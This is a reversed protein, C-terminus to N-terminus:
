SAMCIGEAALMTARTAEVSSPLARISSRRAAVPGALSNYVPLLARDVAGHELAALVSDFDAFYEAQADEGRLARLAAHSFCGAEGQIGVRLQLVRHADRHAERSAGIM